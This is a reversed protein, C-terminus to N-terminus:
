LGRRRRPVWLAEILAYGKPDYKQLGKRDFPFYWSGVYYMTSLDAFYELQNTSAYGPEELGGKYNKVSLYLSEQRSNLWADMMPQYGSPWSLLHWAHSLEHCLAGHAVLDDHNLFTKLSYIVVANRWRTGHLSGSHTGYKSIYRLINKEGGLPSLDGLMLYFKVEKLEAHAHKPLKEFVYDLAAILKELAKDQLARVDSKESIELFITYKSEAQRYPREPFRYNVRKSKTYRPTTVVQEGVCKEPKDTFHTNGSHDKCKVIESYSQASFLILFLIPVFLFVGLSLDRTLRKLKSFFVCTSFQQYYDM